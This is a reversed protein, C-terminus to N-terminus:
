HSDAELAQSLWMCVCMFAHLGFYRPLMRQHVCRFTLVLLYVSVYIQVHPIQVNAQAFVGELLSFWTPWHAWHQNDTLGPGINLKYFIFMLMVQFLSWSLLQPLSQAILIMCQPCWLQNVLGSSTIFSTSCSLCFPLLAEYDSSSSLSIMLWLLRKHKLFSCFCIKKEKYVNM